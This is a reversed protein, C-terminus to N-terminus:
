FTQFARLQPCKQNIDLDFEFGIKWPVTVLSSFQRTIIQYIEIGICTIPYAM